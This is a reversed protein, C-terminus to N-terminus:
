PTSVAYVTVSSNCPVVSTATLDQSKITFNGPPTGAGRIVTGTFNNPPGQWIGQASNVKVDFLSPVTCMGPSVTIYGLKTTTQPGIPSPYALTLSM